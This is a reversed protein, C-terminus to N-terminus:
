TEDAIPIDIVLFQSESFAGSGATQLRLCRAEGGQICTLRKDDSVSRLLKTSALCRSHRRARLLARYQSVLFGWFDLSQLESASAQVVRVLVQFGHHMTVDRTRPDPKGPLKLSRSCSAKSNRTYANDGWLM